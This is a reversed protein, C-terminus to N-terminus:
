GVLSVKKLEDLKKCVEDVQKWDHANKAQVLELILDLKDNVRDLAVNVDRFNKM